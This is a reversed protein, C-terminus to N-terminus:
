IEDQLKTLYAKARANDPNDDLFISFHRIALEADGKHMYTKALAYRSFNNTPFLRLFLMNIAIALDYNRQPIARWGLFWINDLDFRYKGKENEWLFIFQEIADELGSHSATEMFVQSIPIKIEPPNIGLLLGIINKSLDQCPFQECNTLTIIAISDTPLLMFFSQFGIDNGSSWVTNHEKFQGSPWGLGERWIEHYSEKKLITNGHHYGQLTAMTYKVMDLINSHLTSSPAHSRNYPYIHSVMHSLNRTDIVHPSSLLDSAVNQKLFTTNNMELPKFIYKEM